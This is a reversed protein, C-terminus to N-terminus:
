SRLVNFLASTPKSRASGSAFTRSAAADGVIRLALQNAMPGQALEGDFWDLAWNFSDIEPWRFSAVAREYDSRLALLGDRTTRFQARATNSGNM